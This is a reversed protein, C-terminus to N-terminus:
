ATRGIILIYYNGYNVKIPHRLVSRLVVVIYRKM